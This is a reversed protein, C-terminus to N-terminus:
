PHPRCIPTKRFTGPGNNSFSEQVRGPPGLPYPVPNNLQPVQLGHRPVEFAEAENLHKQSENGSRIRSVERDIAMMVGRPGPISFLSMM